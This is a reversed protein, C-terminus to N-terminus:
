QPATAETPISPLTTASPRTAAVSMEVQLERIQDVLSSAKAVDAARAAGELLRHAQEM